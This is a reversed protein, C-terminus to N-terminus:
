YNTVEEGVSMIVIFGGSYVFGTEPNGSEPKAPQAPTPPYQKAPKEYQVPISHLTLCIIDTLIGKNKSKKPPASQARTFFEDSEGGSSVVSYIYCLHM